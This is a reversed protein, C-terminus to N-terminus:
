EGGLSIGLVSAVNHAMREAQEVAEEHRAFEGPSYIPEPKAGVKDGGAMAWVFARLQYEISRLLYDSTSWANEPNAAVSVRSNAPLQAALTALWSLAPTTVDGELAEAYEGVLPM